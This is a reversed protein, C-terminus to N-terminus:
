RREVAMLREWRGQALVNIAANVDRDHRAGCEACTWERTSLPKPGDKVGCSSCVQSTPTFRDM